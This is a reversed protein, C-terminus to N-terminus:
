YLENSENPTMVQLAAPKSIVQEGWENQVICRYEGSDSPRVVPFVLSSNGSPSAESYVLNNSSNTWLYIFNQSQFGESSCTLTVSTGIRPTTDLPDKM